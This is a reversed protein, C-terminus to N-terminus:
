VNLRIIFINEEENYFNEAITVIQIPENHNKHTVVLVRPIVEKIKKNEVVKTVVSYAIDQPIEIELYNYEKYMSMTDTIDVILQTGNIEYGESFVKKRKITGDEQKLNSYISVKRTYYFLPIFPIKSMFPLKHAVVSFLIYLIVIISITTIIIILITTIVKKPVKDKPLIPKDNPKNPNSPNDPNNPTNPNEPNEPVEPIEPIEPEEPTPPTIDDVISIVYREETHPIYHITEPNKIIESSIEHYMASIVLYDNSIIAEKIEGKMWEPHIMVDDQYRSFYTIVEEKNGGYHIDINGMGVHVDRLWFLGNKDQLNFQYDIKDKIEKLIKFVKDPENRNIIYDLNDISGGALYCIVYDNKEKYLKYGTWTNVLATGNTSLKLENIEDTNFGLKEMGNLNNVREVKVCGIHSEEYEGIEVPKLEMREPKNKTDLYLIYNNNSKEIMFGKDSIFGQTDLLEKNTATIQRSDSVDNLTYSNILYGEDALYQVLEELNNFWVTIEYINEDGFVLSINSLILLVTLLFITKKM